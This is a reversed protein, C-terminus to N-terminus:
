TLLPQGVRQYLPYKSGLDGSSVLRSISQHRSYPSPFSPGRGARMPTLSVQTWRPAMSPADHSLVTPDYSALRLGVRRDAYSDLGPAMVPWGDPWLQGVTFGYSALRPAMVPWIKPGYSALLAAMVPWGRPWLQGVRPGYSALRPAMVRWGHPCQQGVTCGYNALRAAM